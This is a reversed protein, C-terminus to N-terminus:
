SELMARVKEAMEKVGAHSGNKSVLGAIYSGNEAIAPFYCTCEERCDAASVPIDLSKAEMVIEHNVQRDDTAAIVFFPMMDSVDGKHYKRRLIYIAKRSAERELYEIATPTIVTIDAGFDLLVKVRRGAVNGGGAVLVKRGHLDVFLPFFARQVGPIEGPSVAPEPYERIKFYALMEDLTYGEEQLPRSIVIVKCGLSLAASVKAEFGGADGSDKTVLFKAGTTKLMTANMERDFPGQMCIINSAHFGLALAKQLSDPMPLIRIFFRETFNETQTFPELEKSGISLLVKGNNKKLLEVASPADPVYTVGSLRASEQRKLRFYKLGAAQCASRINQTALVAYPHTADIVCDFAGQKLLDIMAEKELRGSLIEVGNGAAANKGYKTAVSLTVTVGAKSLAVSLKRGESTGGFILVKM